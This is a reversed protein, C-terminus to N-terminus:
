VSIAESLDMTLLLNVCAFKLETKKEGLFFTKLAHPLAVFVTFRAVIIHM